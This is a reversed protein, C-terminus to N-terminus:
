LSQSVIRDLKHTGFGSEGGTIGATFCKFCWIPFYHVKRASLLQCVSIFVLCQQRPDWKLPGHCILLWIGTAPVRLRMPTKFYKKGKNLLLIDSLCSMHSTLWFIFLWIHDQAQIIFKKNPEYTGMHYLSQVSPWPTFGTKFAAHWWRKHTLGDIM